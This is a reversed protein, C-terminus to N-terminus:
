STLRPCPVTQGEMASYCTGQTQSSGFDIRNKSQCMGYGFKFVVPQSDTGNIQKWDAKQRPLIMLTRTKVWFDAIVCVEDPPPYLGMLDSHRGQLRAQTNHCDMDEPGTRELVSPLLMDPASNKLDFISSAWSGRPTEDISTSRRKADDQHLLRTPPSLHCWTNRSLFESCINLFSTFLTSPSQKM